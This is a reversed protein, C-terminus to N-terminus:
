TDPLSGPLVAECLEIQRSISSNCLEKQETNLCKWCHLCYCNQINRIFNSCDAKQTPPTITPCTGNAAMKSECDDTGGYQCKTLAWFVAMGIGFIVAFILFIILM